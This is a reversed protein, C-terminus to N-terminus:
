NNKGFVQSDLFFKKLLLQLPPKERLETRKQENTYKFNQRRKVQRYPFLQYFNVGALSSKLTKINM